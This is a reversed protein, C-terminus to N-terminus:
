SSFVYRIDDLILDLDEDAWPAQPWELDKLSKTVFDDEEKVVTLSHYPPCSVIDTLPGCEMESIKTAGCFASTTFAHDSGMGVAAAGRAETSDGDLMCKDGVDDGGQGWVQKPRKVNCGDGDASVALRAASGAGGGGGVPTTLPEACQGESCNELTCSDGVNPRLGEDMWLSNGHLEDVNSRTRATEGASPNNLGGSARGENHRVLFTQARKSPPPLPNDKVNLFRLHLQLDQPVALINNRSLDLDLNGLGSPLEPLCCSAVESIMMVGENGIHNEHLDLKKLDKATRLWSCLPVCGKNGIKNCGLGVSSLCPCGKLTEVIVECWDDGIDNDFLQLTRLAPMQTLFALYEIRPVSQRPKTGGEAGIRGIKSSTLDLSEIRVLTFFSANRVEHLLFGGPDCLRLLLFGSFCKLNKVLQSAKGPDGFFDRVSVAARDSHPLIGRFRKCTRMHSQVREPALSYVLNLLADPLRALLSFASRRYCLYPRSMERTRPDSVIPLPDSEMKVQAEAECALNSSDEVCSFVVTDASEQEEHTCEEDSLGSHLSARQGCGSAIKGRDQESYSSALSAAGSVRVRSKTRPKNGSLVDDCKIAYEVEYVLGDSSTLTGKCPRNLHMSGQFVEGDLWTVTGALRM